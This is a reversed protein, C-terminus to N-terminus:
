QTESLHLSFPDAEKKVELEVEIGGIQSAILNYLLCGIATFIFGLTPGLVIQLLIRGFSISGLGSVTVFVALLVTIAVSLALYMAAAFKAAQFVGINKIEHM